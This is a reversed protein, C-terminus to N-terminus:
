HICGLTGVNRQKFCFTSGEGSPTTEIAVGDVKAVAGFTELLQHSISGLITGPLSLRCVFLQVGTSGTHTIM